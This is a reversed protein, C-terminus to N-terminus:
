QNDLCLGNDIRTELFLWEIIPNSQQCPSTSQLYIINIGERFLQECNLDYLQQNQVNQVCLQSNVYLDAPGQPCGHMIAKANTVYLEQYLERFGNVEPLVFVRMNPNASNGNPFFEPLEQANIMFNQKGFCVSPQSKVFVLITSIILIFGVAIFAISKKM